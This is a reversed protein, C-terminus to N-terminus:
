FAEVLHICDELDQLLPNQADGECKILEDYIKTAEKEISIM